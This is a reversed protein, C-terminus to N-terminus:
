NHRGSETSDSALYQRVYADWGKQLEGNHDMGRCHEHEHAPVFRPSLSCTYIDCTSKEFDVVACGLPMVILPKIPFPVGPMCRNVMDWCGVKNETVRFSSFDPGIVPRHAMPACASVFLAIALIAYARM